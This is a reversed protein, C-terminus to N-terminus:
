SRAHLAAPVSCSERARLACYRWSFIRLRHKSDYKVGSKLLKVLHAQGNFLSKGGRERFTFPQAGFVLLKALTQSKWLDFRCSL